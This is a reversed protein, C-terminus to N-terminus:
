KPKEQCQTVKLIKVKAVGKQKKVSDTLFFANKIKM